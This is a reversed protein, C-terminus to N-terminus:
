QDIADDEGCAPIWNDCVFDNAEIEILKRYVSLRRQVPITCKSNRIANYADSQELARTVRWPRCHAM